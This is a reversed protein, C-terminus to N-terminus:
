ARALARLATAQTKGRPGYTAPPGGRLVDLLERVQGQRLNVIHGNVENTARCRTMVALLSRWRIRITESRGAAAGAAADHEWSDGCLSLREAELRELHGLLELKEAAREAVADACGGTLACREADLVAALEQGLEIERDLVAELRAKADATM